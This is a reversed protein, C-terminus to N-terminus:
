LDWAARALMWAAVATVLFPGMFFDVNSQSFLYIARLFVVIALAITFWRVRRWIFYPFVLTIILGLPLAVWAAAKPYGHLNWDSRLGLAFVRTFYLMGYAFYVVAAQHYKREGARHGDEPAASGTDVGRDPNM